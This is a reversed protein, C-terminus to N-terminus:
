RDSDIDLCLGMSNLFQAEEKMQNLFTVSCPFTDQYVNLIYTLVGKQHSLLISLSM